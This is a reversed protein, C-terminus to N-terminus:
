KRRTNPILLSFVIVWVAVAPWGRGGIQMAVPAAHGQISILLGMAIEYVVAVNLLARPDLRTSLWALFLSLPPGLSMATLSIARGGPAAMPQGFIVDVSVFILGVLANILGVYKLRRVAARLLDPTLVQSASSPLPQSSLEAEERLALISAAASKKIARNM